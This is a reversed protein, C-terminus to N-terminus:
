TFNKLGKVIELLYEVMQLYIGVDTINAATYALASVDM